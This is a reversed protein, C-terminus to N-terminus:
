RGVYRADPVLTTDLRIMTDGKMVYFAHGFAGIM